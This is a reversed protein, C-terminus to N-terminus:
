LKYHNPGPSTFSQSEPSESQSELYAQFRAYDICQMAGDKQACIWLEANESHDLYVVKQRGACGLLVVVALLIRM